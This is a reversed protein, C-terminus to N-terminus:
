SNSFYKAREQREQKRKTVVHKGAPKPQKALMRVVPNRPKLKPTRM